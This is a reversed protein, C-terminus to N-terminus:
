GRRRAHYDRQKHRLMCTRCDPNNEDLEGGCGKCSKRLLESVTSFPTIPTVSHLKTTQSIKEGSILLSPTDIERWQPNPANQIGTKKEGNRPHGGSPKLLRLRSIRDLEEILARRSGFRALLAQLVRQKQENTATRVAFVPNENSIQDFRM